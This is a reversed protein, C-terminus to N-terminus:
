PWDELDWACRFGYDTNSEHSQRLTEAAARFSAPNNDIWSGGKLVVAGARETSTWERVNGALDHLGEPTAGDPFVSVAMPGASADGAWRVFAPEWDNGWPFLRRATGRAAYEWEDASPLRGGSWACYANADAQNVHVVPRNPFRLYSTNSGGPARWSYGPAQISGHGFNRMSYGLVEAETRYAQAQVFEAFEANTVEHDDIVFPRLRVERANQAGDGDRECNNLYAACLDLASRVEDAVAGAVFVRTLTRVARRAEIFQQEAQGFQGVAKAFRKAERLKLAGEYLDTAVLFAADNSKAGLALAEARAEKANVEAALADGEKMARAFHEAAQEFLIKASSTDGQALVADAHAFVHVAEAASDNNESQYIRAQLSLAYGRSQEVLRAEADGVATRFADASRVFGQAAQAYERQAYSAIAEVYLRDAEFFSDDSQKGGARLAAERKVDARDRAQTSAWELAADDFAHQARAFVTAANEFDGVVFLENAEVELGIATDYFLSQRAGSADASKKVAQAAESAHRALREHALRRVIDLLRISDTYAESALEYQQNRLSHEARVYHAQADVFGQETISVGLELTQLLTKTARAKLEVAVTELHRLALAALAVQYYKVARDYDADQRAERASSLAGVAAEIHSSTDALDLGDELERVEVELAILKEVFTDELLTVFLDRANSFRRQASEYHQMEFEVMADALAAASSALANADVPVSANRVTQQAERADFLADHAGARLISLRFGEGAAEISSKAAALMDDSQQKAAFALAADASRFHENDINGTMVAAERQKHVSRRLLELASITAQLSHELAQQEVSVFLVAAQKFEGAVLKADAQDFLASMASTDAEVSHLANLAQRARIQFQEASAQQAAQDFLVVANGYRELVEAENHQQLAVKAASLETQAAEFTPLKSADSQRASVESLQVAQQARNMQKESLAQLRSQFSATAQSFQESATEWRQELLAANARLLFANANAFRESSPNMGLEVIMAAVGDSARRQALAQLELEVSRILEELNSYHSQASAFNEADYERDAQHVNQMLGLYSGAESVRDPDLEALRSRIRARVLEAKRRQALTDAYGYVRNAEEARFNAKQYHGEEYAERAADGESEAQLWQEVAHEVAGNRRAQARTQTVSAFTQDVEGRLQLRHWGYWSGAGLLAIFLLGLAAGLFGRSQIPAASFEPTATTSLVPGAVMALDSIRGLTPGSADLEIPSPESAETERDIACIDVQADFAARLANVLEITSNLRSSVHRAVAGQIVDALSASCGANISDLRPLAQTVNYGEFLRVFEAAPMHLRYALVGLAYEDAAREGLTEVVSLAMAYHPGDLDFRARLGPLSGICFAADDESPCYVDVPQLNGHVFGCASLKELMDGVALLIRRRSAFDVAEETLSEALTPGLWDSVLYPREDYRGIPVFTSPALAACSTSASALRLAANIFQASAVKDPLSQVSPTCIRVTKGSDVHMAKFVVLEDGFQTKILRYDSELIAFQNM